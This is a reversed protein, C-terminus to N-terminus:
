FIADVIKRRFFVLCILCNKTEIHEFPLLAGYPKQVNKNCVEPHNRPKVMTEGM